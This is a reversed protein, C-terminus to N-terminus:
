SAYNEFFSATKNQNFIVPVGSTRNQLQEIVDNHTQNTHDFEQVFMLEKQTSVVIYSAGNKEHFGVYLLPKRELTKWTDTDFINLNTNM